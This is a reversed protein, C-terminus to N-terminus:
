YNETGSCTSFVFPLVYSYWNDAGNFKHEKEYYRHKLQLFFPKIIVEPQM